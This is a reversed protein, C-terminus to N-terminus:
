VLKLFASQGEKVAATSAASSATGGGVEHPPSDDRLPARAAAAMCCMGAPKRFSYERATLGPVWNSISCRSSMLACLGLSGRSGSSLRSFVM